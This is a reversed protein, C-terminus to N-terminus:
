SKSKIFLPSSIQNFDMSFFKSFHKLIPASPQFNSGFPGSASKSPSSGNRARPQPPLRRSTRSSSAPIDARPLQAWNSECAFSSPCSSVSSILHMRVPGRPLSTHWYATSALQCSRKPQQTPGTCSAAMLECIKGKKKRKWNKLNRKYEKIVEFLKKCKDKKEKQILCCRKFIRGWYNIFKMFFM